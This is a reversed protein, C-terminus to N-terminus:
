NHHCSPNVKGDNIYYSINSDIKDIVKKLNYKCHRKYGCDCQFIFGFVNCYRLIKSPLTISTQVITLPLKDM